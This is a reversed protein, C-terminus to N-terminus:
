FPYSTITAMGLIAVFVALAMLNRFHDAFSNERVRYKKM